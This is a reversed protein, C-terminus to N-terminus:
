VLRIEIAANRYKGHQMESYFYKGKNSILELIHSKLIGKGKGHIVIIKDYNNTIAYQWEELFSAIQYDLIKESSIKQWHVTLHEIHLDIEHIKEKRIEIYSDMHKEDISHIDMNIPIRVVLHHISIWESFGDELLVHAKQGQIELITGSIPENLLSINDGVQFKM